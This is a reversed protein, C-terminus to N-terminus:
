KEGSVFRGFHVGDIDFLHSTVWAGSGSACVCLLAAMHVADFMGYVITGM